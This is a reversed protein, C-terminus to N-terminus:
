SLGERSSNEKYETAIDKVSDGDLIVWINAGDLGAIGKYNTKGEPPESTRFHSFASSM